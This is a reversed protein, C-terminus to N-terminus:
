IYIPTDEFCGPLPMWLMIGKMKRVRGEPGDARWNMSISWISASIASLLSSPLSIAALPSGHWVGLLIFAAVPLSAMPM